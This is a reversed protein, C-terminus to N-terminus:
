NKLLSKNFVGENTQFQVFLLGRSFSSVDIEKTWQSRYILQGITNYISIYEVDLAEPKKITISASSPNPFIVLDREIEFADVSLVV